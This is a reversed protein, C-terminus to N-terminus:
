ARRVVVVDDGGGPVSAPMALEEGDVGHAPVLICRYSISKRIDAIQIWRELIVSGYCLKVVGSEDVM